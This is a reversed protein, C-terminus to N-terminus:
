GRTEGVVVGTSPFLFKSEDIKLETEGKAVGLLRM